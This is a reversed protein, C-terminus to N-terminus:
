HLYDATKAKVVSSLTENKGHAGFQHIEAKSVQFRLQM